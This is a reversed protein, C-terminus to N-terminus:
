KFILKIRTEMTIDTQCGLAYAKRFLGEEIIFKSTVRNYGLAVLKRVEVNKHAEKINKEVELEEVIKGIAGDFYEKINNNFM